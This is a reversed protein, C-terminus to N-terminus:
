AWTVIHCAPLSREDFLIIVSFSQLIYFIFYSLFGTPLTSLPHSSYKEMRKIVLFVFIDNLALLHPILMNLVMFTFKLLFGLSKTSNCPLLFLVSLFFLLELM